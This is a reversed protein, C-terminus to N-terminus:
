FQLHVRLVCMKIMNIPMLRTVYSYKMWKYKTHTHTCIHAHINTQLLWCVFYLGPLKFVLESTPFDLLLIGRHIGKQRPGRKKDQLGKIKKPEEMTELVHIFPQHRQTELDEKRTWSILWVPICDLERHCFLREDQKEYKKLFRTETMTSFYSKVM